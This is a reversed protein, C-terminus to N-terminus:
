IVELELLIDKPIDKPIDKTISRRLPESPSSVSARLLSSSSVEQTSSSVSDGLSKTNSDKKIQIYDQIM